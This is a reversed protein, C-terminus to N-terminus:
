QNGPCALCFTGAADRESKSERRSRIDRTENGTIEVEDRWEETCICNVIDTLIFVAGGLKPAVWNKTCEVSKLSECLSYSQEWNTLPKRVSWFKLFSFMKFSHPMFHRFGKSLSRAVRSVNALQLSRKQTEYCTTDWQVRGVGRNAVLSMSQFIILLCITLTLVLKKFESNWHNLLRWIFWKITPDYISHLIDAQM